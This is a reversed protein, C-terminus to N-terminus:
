SARGVFICVGCAELKYFDWSPWQMVLLKLFSGASWKGMKMDKLVSPFKSMMEICTKLRLTTEKLQLKGPQSKMRM